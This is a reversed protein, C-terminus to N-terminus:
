EDPLVLVLAKLSTQASGTVLPLCPAFCNTFFCTNILLTQTPFISGFLSNKSQVNKVQTTQGIDTELRTSAFCALGKNRMYANTTFSKM